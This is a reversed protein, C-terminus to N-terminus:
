QSPSMTLLGLSLVAMAVVAAFGKKM